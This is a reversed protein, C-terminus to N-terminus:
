DPNFFEKPNNLKNKKYWDYSKAIHGLDLARYGHLALDYALVTATQGLIIIILRKKEIQLAQKLISDYQSFANKGPADIMEISKVNGFINYTLNEFIQKNAIITIDKSQWIQRMKNFFNELNKNKYIFPMTVETAYYLQDMSCNQEILKYFPKIHASRWFLIQRLDCQEKGTYMQKPIGICIHPKRSRLVELLRDSIKDLNTYQFPSPCHLINEFEGDGFRCLSNETNILMDLTEDASKISPDKTRTLEYAMEHRLFETDYQKPLQEIDQTLLFWINKKIRKLFQYTYLLPKFHILKQKSEFNTM